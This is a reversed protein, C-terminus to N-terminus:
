FSTEEGEYMCVYMCIHKTHVTNYIFTTYRMYAVDCISLSSFYFSIFFKCYLSPILYFLIFSDLAFSRWSSHKYKKGLAINVKTQNESLSLSFM